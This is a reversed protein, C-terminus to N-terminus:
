NKGISHTSPLSLQRTALVQRLGLVARSATDPLLLTPPATSPPLSALCSRMLPSLLTLQAQQIVLEVGDGAVVVIREQGAVLLQSYVEMLQEEHGKNVMTTM